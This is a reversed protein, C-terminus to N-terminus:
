LMKESVVGVYWHEDGEKEPQEHWDYCYGSVLTEDLLRKILKYKPICVEKLIPYMESPMPDLLTQYDDSVDVLTIRALNYKWLEGDLNAM